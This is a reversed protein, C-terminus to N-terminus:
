YFLLLFSLASYTRPKIRYYEQFLKSKPDDILRKGVTSYAQCPPGGIVLDIDGKKINFDKELDKIFELTSEYKLLPTDPSGNLSMFASEVPTYGNEVFMKYRIVADPHFGSVSMIAAPLKPVGLQVTMRYASLSADPSTSGSLIAAILELSEDM